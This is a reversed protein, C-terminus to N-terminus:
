SHIATACLASPSSSIAAASAAVASFMEGLETDLRRLDALSRVRRGSWAPSRPGSRADGPAGGIPLHGFLDEDALLGDAADPWCRCWARPIERVAATAHACWCLTSYYGVQMMQVM